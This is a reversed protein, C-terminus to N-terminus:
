DENLADIACLLRLLILTVVHANLTIIVTLQFSNRRWFSFSAALLLEYQCLFAEPLM